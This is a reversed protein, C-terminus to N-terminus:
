SRAEAAEVIPRLNSFGNEFQGGVMKDCDMVLGFAKGMFNNRGSMTWTVTTQDGSVDFTFETRHTAKMPRIFDLRFRIRDHPRSETIEMRGEGVANNGSWGMAAGVGSRPGEFTNKADPDLKAWPSWAQWHDLDNIQAFLVERTARFSCTRTITFEAPQLVVFLVLLVLLTVVIWLIPM